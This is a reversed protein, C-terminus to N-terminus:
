NMWKKKKLTIEENSSTTDQKIEATADLGMTDESINVNQTEDNITDPM